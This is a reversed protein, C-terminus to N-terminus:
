EDSVEADGIALLDDVADGIDLVQAGFSMARSATDFNDFSNDAITADVLRLWKEKLNGELVAKVVRRWRELRADTADLADLLAPIDSRSHAIFSADALPDPRREEDDSSDWDDCSCVMAQGHPDGTGTTVWDGNGWPTDVTSWPGKTAANARERIAARDAPTLITRYSM